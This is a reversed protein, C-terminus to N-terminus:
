KADFSGRKVIKKDDRRRDRPVHLHIYNCYTVRYVGGALDVCVRAVQCGVDVIM